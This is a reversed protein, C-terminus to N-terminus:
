SKHTLFGKVIPIRLAIRHVWGWCVEGRMKHEELKVLRMKVDSVEGQVTALRERYRGFAYAAIIAILGIFILTSTKMNQNIWM